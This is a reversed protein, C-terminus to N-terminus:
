WPEWPCRLLRSTPAWKEPPGHWEVLALDVHLDVDHERLHRVVVYEGGEIDLKLVVPRPLALVLAALDVAPAYESSSGVSAVRGVIGDYAFLVTGNKTWGAAHRTVVTTGDVCTIGEELAPSPDLGLLLDPHFRNILKPISEDLTGALPGGQRPQPACGVDVVIM